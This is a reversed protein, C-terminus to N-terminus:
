GLGEAWSALSLLVWIRIRHSAAGSLHEALLRAPVEPRVVGLAALPGTPALLRAAEERLPGRLAEDVPAAFGRKRKALLAAPVDKELAARLVRKGRFGSVKFSSPFSLCLEVVEREQFPSRAELGHAMTATDVKHNMYDALHTRLDTRLVRDLADRGGSADLLGTLWLRPLDGHAARFAPDLLEERRGANFCEYFEYLREGEPLGALELARGMRGGAARRLWRPAGRPLRDVLGLYAHRHYGGLIEDGGDGTLAVTVRRRAASALASTVAASSDGFPEGFLAFVDRLEEPGPPSADLTEHDTGLHRAIAAADASEDLAPDPHRLSFTKVKGSGSAAAAATVASSDLGGSLFAGVPVDALMRRRVARRLEQRLAEAADEFGGAFTGGPPPFWWMEPAGTGRPVVQLLHGAPLRRAGRFATWPAPIYSFALHFSLGQPDPEAPLGSLARLADLTSAFYMRGGHLATFLPKEGLADRALLLSREKADYAAFAFQGRLLAPAAAGRRAVLRLLTETDSRTAFREGEREMAERLEAHNFIEGNFAITWRGDPTSMPQAGGPLDLIALRRHGFACLGDASAWTGEGDPGRRELRRLASRMRDGAPAPGEASATSYWGAFGCM